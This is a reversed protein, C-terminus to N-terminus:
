PRLRVHDKLDAHEFIMTEQLTLDSGVGAEIARLYM